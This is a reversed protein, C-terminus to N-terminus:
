GDNVPSVPPHILEFSNLGVVLDVTYHYVILNKLQGITVVVAVVVFDVQCKFLFLHVIQPMCCCCFVSSEM